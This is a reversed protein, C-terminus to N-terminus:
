LASRLHDSNSVEATKASSSRFCPRNRSLQEQLTLLGACYRRRERTMTSYGGGSANQERSRERVLYTTGLFWASVLLNIWPV